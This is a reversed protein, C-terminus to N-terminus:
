RAEPDTTSPRGPPALALGGADVEALALGGGAGVETARHRLVSVAHQWLRSAGLRHKEAQLAPLARTSGFEGLASAADLAIHRAPHQLLALWVTEADAPTLAHLRHVVAQAAEVPERALAVLQATPLAVGWATLLELAAGQLAPPGADLAARLRPVRETTPWRQALIPLGWKLVDLSAHPLGSTALATDGVCLGMPLAFPSEPGMAARLARTARATTGDRRWGTHLSHWAAFGVGDPEAEVRALLREARAEPDYGLSAALPVLGAIKAWGVRGGREPLHCLDVRVWGGDIYLGVGQAARALAARTPADWLGRWLAPDGIVGVAADFAPDGSPATQTAERHLRLQAHAWGPPLTPGQVAAVAQRRTCTALEVRAGDPRTLSVRDPTRTTATWGAKRAAKALARIRRRGGVAPTYRADRYVAHAGLGMVIPALVFVVRDWDLFLLALGAAAPLAVALKLLLLICGDMAREAPDDRAM